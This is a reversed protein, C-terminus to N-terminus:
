SEEENYVTEDHLPVGVTRCWEERGMQVTTPKGCRTFWLFPILKQRGPTVRSALLPPDSDSVVFFPPATLCRTAGVLFLFAYGVMHSYWATLHLHDDMPGAPLGRDVLHDWLQWSGRWVLVAGWFSAYSFLHDVFSSLFCAGFTEEKAKGGGEKGEEEHDPANDSAPPSWALAAALGPQSVGLIFHIAIGMLLGIWGSKLPEEPWLAADVAVWAGRWTLAVAAGVMLSFPLETVLLWWDVGGGAM